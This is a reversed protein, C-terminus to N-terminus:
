RKSRANAKRRNGRSGGKSKSGSGYSAVVVRELEFRYIKSKRRKAKAKPPLQHEVAVGIELWAAAQPPEVENFKVNDRADGPSSKPAAEADEDFNSIVSGSDKSSQAEDDDDDAADADAHPLDSM